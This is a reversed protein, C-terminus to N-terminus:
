RIELPVRTSLSRLLDIAEIVQCRDKLTHCIGCSLDIFRPPNIATCDHQPAHPPGVGPITLGVVQMLGAFSTASSGSSRSTVSTAQRESSSLLKVCLMKAVRSESPTTWLILFQESHLPDGDPLLALQVKLKIQRWGSGTNYIARSLAM